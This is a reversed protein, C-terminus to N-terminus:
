KARLLFVICETQYPEHYIIFYTVTALVYLTHFFGFCTNLSLMNTHCVVLFMVELITYILLSSYMLCLKSFPYFDNVIHFKLDM